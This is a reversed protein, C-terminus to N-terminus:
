RFCPWTETSTEINLLKPLKIKVTKQDAAPPSAQEKLHKSLETLMLRFYAMGNEFAFAEERLSAFYEASVQAERLTRPNQSAPLTIVLEGENDTIAQQLAKYVPRYKKIQWHGLMAELSEVLNARAESQTFEPKAAPLSTGPPEPRVKPGTPAGEGSRRRQGRASKKKVHEDSTM